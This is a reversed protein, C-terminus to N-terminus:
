MNYGHANALRWELESIRKNLSEIVFSSAPPDFALRVKTSVYDRVKPYIDPDDAFDRWTESEGSVIIGPVKGVGMDYLISLTSNIYTILETDFSDDDTEINAAPKVTQLISDDMTSIM